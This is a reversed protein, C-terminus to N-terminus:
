RDCGKKERMRTIRQVIRETESQAAKGSFVFHDFTLQIVFSLFTFTACKMGMRDYINPCCVCVCM